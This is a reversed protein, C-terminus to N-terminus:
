RPYLNVDVIHPVISFVNPDRPDVFVEVWHVNPSGFGELRTFKELTASGGTSVAGVLPKDFRFYHTDGHALLVPKGFAITRARLKDIFKNFGRRQENSAALEFNPNAQIAIMVGVSGTSQATDFVRDLWVLSAAERQEFEAVRDARPNAITDTPDLQNWPALNNNSGVVHVTAMTVGAFRWMANEVYAEFGSFASQPMLSFPRKGTSRAPNPYFIQRFKALRETPVYTGNNTRHCDTWDNDGPTIIFADDFKQYQQFRSILLADDCRESGGKVDGLHVVFRVSRSANINAIVNDFRSEEPAGYPVDGILAFSMGPRVYNDAFAFGPAFACGLVCSVAAIRISKM